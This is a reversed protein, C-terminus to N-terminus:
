ETKYACMKSRAADVDQLKIAGASGEQLETIVAECGDSKIDFAAEYDKGLRPTFTGAVTKCYNYAGGPNSAFRMAITLPQDPTIDYERFYAKSMIGDRKEVNLTNPTDAMGIRVNKASGTFSSFADGLGGSVSTGTASGGYCTSNQYFDVKVGNQGFLRIRTTSRSPVSPASAAQKVSTSAPTDAWALNGKYRSTAVRDPLLLNRSAASLRGAEDGRVEEMRYANFMGFTLKYLIPETKIEIESTAQYGHSVRYKGAPLALAVYTDIPMAVRLPARKTTGALAEVPEIEVHASSPQFQAGLDGRRNFIVLNAPNQESSGLSRIGINNEAAYEALRGYQSFRGTVELALFYQVINKFYKEELPSTGMALAHWVVKNKVQDYVVVESNIYAYESNRQEQVRLKWDVMMLYRRAKLNEPIKKAQGAISAVREVHEATAYAFKDKSVAPFESFQKCAAVEDDNRCAEPMLVVVSLEEDNIRSGMDVQLIEFRTIRDPYAFAPLSVLLWLPVLFVTFFTAPTRRQITNVRVNVGHNCTESQCL